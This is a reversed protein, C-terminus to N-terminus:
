QVIFEWAERSIASGDCFTSSARIGLPVCGTNPCTPEASVVNDLDDDDFAELARCNPACAAGAENADGCSTDNIETAEDLSSTNAVLYDNVDLDVRVFHSTSMARLKVRTGEVPIVEFLEAQEANAGLVLYGQSELAVYTRPEDMMLTNALIKIVTVCQNNPDEPHTCAGQACVDVTCAVGDDTCAATTNEHMCSGGDCIDDTCENNDDACPGTNNQYQCQGSGDCSDDTCPNSDDCDGADSCDCQGTSPHTCFGGNCVDGTCENGDDVCPDTTAPHICIGGACRDDTCENDDSECPDSNPRISCFGNAGCSDTTCPNSDDCESNEECAIAASNGGLNGAGALGSGAGGNGGVPNSTASGGSGNGSGSSNSNSNGTGGSGSTFADGGCALVVACSWAVLSFHISKM